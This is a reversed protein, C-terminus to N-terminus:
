TPEARYIVVTAGVANVLDVDLISTMTEIDKARQVKESGRMKVKVLQHADLAHDIEALVADTLGKQGVWVVPKLRQAKSKLTRRHANTLTM